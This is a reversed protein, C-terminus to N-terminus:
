LTMTHSWEPFSDLIFGSMFSIRFKILDPTTLAVVRAGREAAVDSAALNRERAQPDQANIVLVNWNIPRNAALSMRTLLDHLEPSSPGGARPIFELTTGPHQRVEGCLALLE